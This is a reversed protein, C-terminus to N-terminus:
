NRSFPGVPQGDKTRYMIYPSVAAVDQRRARLAAELTAIRVNAINLRNILKRLAEEYEAQENAHQSIAGEYDRMTRHAQQLETDVAHDAMQEQRLRHAQALDDHIRAAEITATLKREAQRRRVYNHISSISALALACFLAAALNSM